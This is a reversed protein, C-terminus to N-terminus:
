DGDGGEAHLTVGAGGPAKVELRYAKARSDVRNWILAALGSLWLVLLHTTLELAFPMAAGTVLWMVLLIKSTRFGKL